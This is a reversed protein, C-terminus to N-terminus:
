GNVALLTKFFRECYPCRKRVTAPDMLTLIDGAHHIKHYKGKQTGETAQNLIRTIESKTIKELNKRSPLVNKKFDTGYYTELAQSDAVIWTEMAQTMLHVRDDDIGKLNWGDRSFLHDSPTQTNVQEESDVLLMIIGKDSNLSKNRFRKYAENRPGCCVLKWRWNKERFANKIDALFFDMGQRLQAKSNKSNGGGEMYITINM